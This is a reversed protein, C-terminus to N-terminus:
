ARTSRARRRLPIVRSDHADGIDDGGLTPLTRSASAERATCDSPARQLFAIASPSALYLKTMTGKFAHGVVRRVFSGSELLRELVRAREVISLRSFTRLRRTAFVSMWEVLVFLLTMQRRPRPPLELLFAEFRLVISVDEGTPADLDNEPFMAEAAARACRIATTELVVGNRTQADCHSKPLHAREVVIVRGFHLREGSSNGEVGHSSRLSAGRERATAIRNCPTRRDTGGCM